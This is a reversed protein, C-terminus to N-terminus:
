DIVWKGEHRIINMRKQYKLRYLYPTNKEIIKKRFKILNIDSVNCYIELLPGSYIGVALRNMLDDMSYKGYNKNYDRGTNVRKPRQIFTYLSKRVFDVCADENYDM